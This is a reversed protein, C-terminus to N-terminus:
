LTPNRQGKIDDQETEECEQFQKYQGDLHTFVFAIVFQDLVRWEHEIDYQLQSSLEVGKLYEDSFPELIEASGEVQLGKLQGFGRYPEFIALGVNKNEKLCKFKLGGESFFYFFGDVYNYEIPTNRVMGSSATALACTNHAKIFADIKEKLDENNM